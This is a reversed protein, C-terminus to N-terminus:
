NYFTPLADNSPAPIELPLRSQHHRLNINENNVGFFPSPNNKSDILIKNAQQEVNKKVDEIAMKLKELEHLGLENIPAEWWCQSRSAKRIENLVECHKKEVELQHLVRTLHM